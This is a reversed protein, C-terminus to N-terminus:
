LQVKEITGWSDGIEVDVKMPVNFVVTTLQLHKVQRAWTRDGIPESFDFEDHVTAQIPIGAKRCAIITKKAQGGASGQGIRNFAKHAKWIKGDPGKKFRCKRGDATWVYGREEAIASAKRVLGEVWPAYKRFEAIMVQAEPGPKLKAFKRTRRIINLEDPSVHQLEGDVYIPQGLDCALKVDGEGYLRGNVQNKVISRKVGSIDSLKQHIDLAPNKRYEEAFEKAGPLGLMEAYHVGIRPEQQSWDSCVWECGRDAVFISRWRAGFEENRIPQYQFNFQASSFRGYRVGKGGKGEGEGANDDNNRSQHFTVHVRWEDGHNILQERVQPAFTTKIKGWQRARLISKGVWGCKPLLTKVVSDAGKDTKPVSYGAVRLARALPESKWIDEPSLDVGTGDRVKAMEERIVAEADREMAELRDVDIRIGRQRMEVCIPTVAREMAWCDMVGPGAPSCGEAELLKEQRRYIQHVRQADVVGYPGVYRAPLRWLDVKPDLRYAWAADRLIKEDKGPFGLRACLADMGYEFENEDILVAAVQVDVTEKDLLSHSNEFGEREFETTLWDQDYNIGNGLIMGQFDHIQDHLYRLVQTPGETMNDGLEHRIPLYYRPGDEVDFSIGCVYNERKDRRCGPGLAKLHPDRCEVDIAVRKADRWSPMESLRPVRWDTQPLALSLPQQM